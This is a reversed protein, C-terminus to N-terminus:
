ISEEISFWNGQSDQLIRLGCRHCWSGFSAGDWTLWNSPTHWDMWCCFKRWRELITVSWRRGRRSGGPAPAPGVSSLLRATACMRLALYM